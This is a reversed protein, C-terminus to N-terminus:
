ASNPAAFCLRWWRASVRRRLTSLITIPHILSEYLIGLVIYVTALAAAILLPENALSDEFAQATGQFSGHMSSPLGIQDAAKEVAIVADGLAM